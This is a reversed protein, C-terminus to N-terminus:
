FKTVKSFNLLITIIFKENDQTNWTVYKGVKGVLVVKLKDEPQYADLTIAYIMIVFIIFKIM